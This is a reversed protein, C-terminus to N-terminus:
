GQDEQTTAVKQVEIPEYWKHNILVWRDTCENLNMNEGYWTEIMKTGGERGNEPREGQLPVQPM